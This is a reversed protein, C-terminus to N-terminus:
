PVDSKAAPTDLRRKADPGTVATACIKPRSVAAAARVSKGPVPGVAATSPQPTILPSPLATPVKDSNWPRDTPRILTTAVREATSVATMGAM